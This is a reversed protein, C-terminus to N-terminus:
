ILNLKTFLAELDDRFRKKEFKEIGKINDMISISDLIASALKKKASEQNLSKMTEFDLKIEYQLTKYLRYEIGEKEYIKEEKNYRPKRPKFFPEFQPSVCIVGIYLENVSDGYNNISVLENIEKEISNFVELLKNIEPSLNLAFGFKM